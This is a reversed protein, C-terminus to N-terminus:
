VIVAHSRIMRLQGRPCPTCPTNGVFRAQMASADTHALTIANQCRTACPCPPPLSTSPLLSRRPRLPAHAIALSTSAYTSALPAVQCTIQHSKASWGGDKRMAAALPIDRSRVTQHRISPRARLRHQLEVRRRFTWGHMSPMRPAAIKLYNTSAETRRWDNVAHFRSVAPLGRPLPIGHDM